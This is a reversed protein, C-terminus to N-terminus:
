GRTGLATRVDEVSFEDELFNNFDKGIVNELEDDILTVPKLMNINQDTVGVLFAEGSVRLLAVSKRPGLHLQHMIEIRAKSGGKDKQRSFRRSLFYFAGGVAALIGLSAALRWLVNSSSKEGTKGSLFVPIDSEKTEATIAPTESQAAETTATAVAAETAVTTAKESKGNKTDAPTNESILKEAAAVIAEDSTEAYANLCLLATLIVATFRM